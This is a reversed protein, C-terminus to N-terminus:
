QIPVLRTQLTHSDIAKIMALVDEKAFVLHRLPEKHTESEAMYEELRIADVGELVPTPRIPLAM